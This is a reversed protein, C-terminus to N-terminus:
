TWVATRGKQLRTTIGALEGPETVKIQLIAENKEVPRVILRVADNDEPFLTAEDMFVGEPLANEPWDILRVDERTLPEGYKMSRDAVYVPVTPVVKQAAARERALEAQYEGIYNKAMYVAGGALAVGALLVLGFIMRM